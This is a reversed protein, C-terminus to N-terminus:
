VTDLGNGSKGTAVRIFVVSCSRQGISGTDGKGAGVPHEYPDIDRAPRPSITTILTSVVEPGM